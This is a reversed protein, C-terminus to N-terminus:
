SIVECSWMPQLKSDSHEPLTAMCSKPTCLLSRRLRVQLMALSPQRQARRWRAPHWFRRNANLLATMWDAAPTLGAVGAHAGFYRQCGFVTYNTSDEGRM